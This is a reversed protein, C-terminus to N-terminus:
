PPGGIAFLRALDASVKRELADLLGPLAAEVRQAASGGVEGGALALAVTTLDLGMTQALAEPLSGAAVLLALQELAWPALARREGEHSAPASARLLPQTRRPKM